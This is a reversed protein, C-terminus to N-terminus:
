MRGLVGGVSGDLVVNGTVSLEGIGTEGGSGENLWRQLLDNSEKPKIDASATGVTVHAVANTSEFVIDDASGDLRVVFCMIRSDWVVREMQVACKGLEPEWSGATAAQQSTEHLKILKDWYPQNQAASMRHM